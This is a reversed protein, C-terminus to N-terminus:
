WARVEGLDSTESADSLGLNFWLAKLTADVWNGTTHAWWSERGIMAWPDFPQSPALESELGNALWGDISEDLNELDPRDGAAGGSYVYYHHYDPDVRLMPRRGDEDAYQLIDADATGRFWHYASYLVREVDGSRSDYFVIVPEHDGLHSDTRGLSGEQYPYELFGYVANLDSEDSEAHLAHFALPDPQVGDLIVQPQYARILEEDYTITVHDPKGDRHDARARSSTAAISATGIAIAGAGRLVDRRSPTSATM